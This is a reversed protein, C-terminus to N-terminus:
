KLKFVEPLPVFVSAALVVALPKTVTLAPVVRAKDVNVSPEADLRTRSHPAVAPELIVPEPTNVKAPLTVTVSAEPAPVLPAEIAAGNAKPPPTLVKVTASSPLVATSKAM